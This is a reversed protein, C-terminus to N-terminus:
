LKAATSRAGSPLVPCSISSCLDMQPKHRQPIRSGGLLYLSNTSQSRGQGALKPECVLAGGYGSAFISRFTPEGQKKEQPQSQGNNPNLTNPKPKATSPKPRKPSPTDQPWGQGLVQAPGVTFFLFEPSMDLGHLFLQSSWSVEVARAGRKALLLSSSVCYPTNARQLSCRVEANLPPIPTTLGAGGGM